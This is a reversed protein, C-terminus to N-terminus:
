FRGSVVFGAETRSGMFSVQVRSPRDFAKRRYLMAAGTAILTPSVMIMALGSRAVKVGRLRDYIADRQAQDQEPTGDTDAVPELAGRVGRSIMVTGAVFQAVGLSLTGAGIGTIIKKRKERNGDTSALAIGRALRGGGLGGLVAGGIALTGSMSLMAYRGLFRGADVECELIDPIDQCPPNLAFHTLLGSTVGLGVGASTLGIGVKLTKNMGEPPSEAPPESVPEAESPETEADETDADDASEDLDDLDLGDGEEGDEDLLSDEDDLDDPEAALVAFATPGVDDVASTDIGSSNLISALGVLALPTHM